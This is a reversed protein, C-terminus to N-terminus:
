QLVTRLQLMSRKTNTTLQLHNDHRQWQKIQSFPCWLKASAETVLVGASHWLALWFYSHCSMVMVFKWPMNIRAFTRESQINKNRRATMLTQFLRDEETKPKEHAVAVLMQLSTTSSWSESKLDIIRAFLYVISGFSVLLFPLLAM